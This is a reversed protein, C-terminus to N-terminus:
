WRGEGVALLAPSLASGSGDRKTAGFELPRPTPDPKSPDDSSAFVGSLQHPGAVRALVLADGKTLKQIRLGSGGRGKTPFEDVPTSKARGGSSATVVVGNDVVLGAALVEADGKLKMGAVGAAGRGQTKVTEIPMRLTQGDTAIILADGESPAVFAAAVLDDGKLKIVPAGSRGSFLESRELRKAVGERTVVMVPDGESSFVAVLSEGRAIDFIESVSAGRSRGAVEPIDAVAVRLMRGNSTIGTVEAGTSSVIAASLVDHRGPKATAAGDAPQRGILGSTTFALTCAEEILETPAPAELAAAEVEAASLMRSRRPTGYKKVIEELEKLVMTRQRKDSGLLKEYEAIRKRLEVLEDILKQVELATLRRLQMELIHEAQIETLTLDAQLRASAEETDASSRIIAIVEDIADLAILLGEVIHARALAKDLRYQTRRRIVDLRHDIYHQCLEIIGVTTPRNNVLVVNNFSFSEELPTLRYLDNLIAHPNSGTRCEIVVRLGNTRDSLDNVDTVNALKGKAILDKIRSVVKEPGVMYPLETVVIGQKRRGVKEVETKARMRIAGRGSEYADRLSEDIILGGSPFDPGPLVKMVQDLTVKPRRQTMVLKIAEYVEGLNHPAMNTAMGVAIGATGNVLLNPVLGPLYAPEDNLGDFTPRFDVTEEVIEGLMDMAANTPRCETYRYAAPPDDLSGFNGHPDVMTVNRAFDWGLRVLADYIASDGHPHYKGMTDGVVGACKRHASDPRLGLKYMSFLIRRQVPKLGDRVDPIARSTIVSLSYALFSDSMEDTVPTDIVERAFAMGPTAAM